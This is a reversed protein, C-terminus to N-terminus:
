AKEEEYRLEVGGVGIVDGPALPLREHALPRGNLLTANTSGLDALWYRGDQAFVDAHARSVRDSPIVIAAQGTRGIVNRMGLPYRMGAVPGSLALLCARPYSGATAMSIALSRRGASAGPIPGGLAMSSVGLTSKRFAQYQEANPRREMAVAEDLLMEYVEALPTASGAAYGPTAAIEAMFARLVSAAGDWQGRDALARAQQRVDDARALLVKAQVAPVLEGPSTGVGITATEELSSEASRGARRYKLRAWLLDMTLREEDVRAHAEVVAIRREGALLDSLPVVIGEPGYRARLGGAFGVIEVGAAPRLTLSLAEAVVDGQAGLAMALEHQCTQPDPVFHYRGGGASAIAGLVSDSHNIGYGLTSVSVNPRMAASVPALGDATAAGVNPQGDSLLLVGQRENAARPPFMRAALNLAAEINTQGNAALRRVRHCVLEKSERTAFALPAVETAHDGFAVVGIRDTEDLLKVLKEVSRVVQELPAGGMSGSVDLAFVTSLPARMPEVGAVKAVIDGVVSVKQPGIGKVIRTVNAALSFELAHESREDM